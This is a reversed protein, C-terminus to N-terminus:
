DQKTDIPFNSTNTRPHSRWGLVFVLLKGISIYSETLSPPYPHTATTPSCCASRKRRSAGSPYARASNDETFFEVGGTEINPGIPAGGTIECIFFLKYISFYFFPHGRRNRDYVAALKVARAEYGSEERVEREVAERPSDTMDAWGGPLTWRGNDLMERVLLIKDERFLAARVDVKPTAYGEEASFLTEIQTTDIDSHQALIEAAIRRV